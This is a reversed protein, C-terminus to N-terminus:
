AAPVGKWVIKSVRTQEDKSWLLVAKADSAHSMEIFGDEQLRRLAQSIPASLYGPPLQEVVHKVELEKRYRGGDLVPCWDALKQILDPVTLSTKKEGFQQSLRLKLHATPDFVFSKRKLRGCAWGFGLYAAWHTLQGYRTDNMELATLIENKPEMQNWTSPVTDIDQALFWALARCLDENQHIPDVMLEFMMLPWLDASSIMKRSMSEGVSFNGDEKKRLLGIRVAENLAQQLARGPKSEGDGSPEEQRDFSVVPPTMMAEIKEWPVSRHHQALVFRLLGLVRAPSADPVSYMSM